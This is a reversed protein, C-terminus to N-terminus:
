EKESSFLVKYSTGAKGILLKLVGGDKKSASLLMEPIGDNTLDGYFEIIFPPNGCGLSPNNEPQHCTSCRLAPSGHNDAGREVGFNHYHSDEGQRPRDGAPHCNVCRKHTLVQMVLDFDSPASPTVTPETHPLDKSIAQSIGAFAFLALFSLTYRYRM